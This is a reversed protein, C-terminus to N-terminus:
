FHRWIVRFMGLRRCADLFVCSTTQSPTKAYHVAAGNNTFLPGNSDGREAQLSGLSALTPLPLIQSGRDNHRGWKDRIQGSASLALEARSGVRDDDGPHDHDHGTKGSKSAGVFSKEQADNLGEEQRRMKKARM